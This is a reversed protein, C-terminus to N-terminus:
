AVALIQAEMAGRPREIEVYAGVRAGLLARGLPSAISVRGEEAEDPGVLTVRQERGDEWRLSVVSGFRATGDPEERPVIRVSDLTAHLLAIPHGLDKAREESATAREALLAELRAVFAAHGEPTIPREEGPASRDITRGPVSVDETEESTFAKSV